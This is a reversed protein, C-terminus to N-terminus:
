RQSHTPASGDPGIPDSRSMELRIKAAELSRGTEELVDVLSDAAERIAETVSMPLLQPLRRKLTIAERIAVIAEPLERRAVARALGFGCLGFAMQGQLVESHDDTAIQRLLEVAERTDTLAEEHRGLNSMCTGLNGLSAALKLSFIAPHAAVLRRYREAAEVIPVLAEEARGLGSLLQALNDLENALTPEFAAPNSMALRRSLEVAEEVPALADERRGLGSLARGLNGLAIALNSEHEAPNSAALRRFLSVSEEFAVLSADRRELIALRVGLNGLAMALESEFAGPNNGALRRYIGVSEQTLALSEEQRGAQSLDSALNDVSAALYPEFAGPNSKALKRYLESSEHTAALAEEQRGLASLYNGLFVLSGALYSESATPNIEVLKRRIQVAEEIANLADEPRGARFLDASLNHLAKALEPEAASSNDVALRRLLEAAEQTATLAGERRGLYSRDNGLNTLAAALLLEYAAPNAAALRRSITVAEETATLAEERRGLSRMRNGLRGLVVALDPEFTASNATALPRLLEVSEETTHLAEEWRGLDSQATGLYALARVLEPDFANPNAAALRRRIEVAEEVTHLAEERQGLQTQIAGLNSLSTALSANLASSSEERLSRLLDVAEQTTDRAEERMGLILQTWGFSTLAKALDPGFNKLNTAAMSRYIQAARENAKLAEREDGANALRRGLNLYLRAHEDPEDTAALRHETLRRTIVAIGPDLDVHRESPLLNEVAELIDVPIQPLDALAALAAAGADVALRPNGRLLSYFFAEGLHPWRGTATALFTIARPDYSMAMSTAGRSLLTTATSPAWAYAPQDTAHGPTTVGLFDEALRDPYLPELVTALRPDDPPYCAAHDTLVRDSSLELNLGDLITKGIRHNVPGTLAATFVARSMVSPPTQFELGPERKDAHARNEYLHTWQARERDLLYATLGIPDQPMERGHLYADVAALAAMHLALILGWEPRDLGAPPAIVDPDPVGYHAAFSDRAAIFAQERHGPEDPLSTLFQQSVGAQYSSLKGRLAPWAYATRGLLLVRTLMATQHLLSNSLLWTLHTLPWRDAYDVILLLGAADGLRMDQSGPPPLVAGLGHTATVVRWGGDALEEAIRAALRTKGQGGPAYLWRAAMRSGDRSWNRLDDLEGGRGTFGVVANRSSLMRSPLERLWRSDVDAPRLYNELVYLPTGDGLVHLDAGIVGYAFGEIATVNQVVGKPETMANM